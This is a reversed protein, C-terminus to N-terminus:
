TGLHDRVRPAAKLAIGLQFAPELVGVQLNELEKKVSESPHMLAGLNVM